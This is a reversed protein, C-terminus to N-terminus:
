SPFELAQRANRVFQRVLEIDKVGPSSEVGSAVDVGWPRVAAIAEAVNSSTLGGAVILPPLSDQPYERVLKKWPVKKGSGGYVGEVHSDILCGELSLKQSQCEGLFTKLHGLGEKRMRWARVLRVQPLRRKLEIFYSPPEDGHLQLVDLRCKLSFSEVEPISHNVFVGVRAIEQPLINSIAIAEEIAVHRPSRPYFNLGIADIGTQAVQRATERDRIGCIKIWM